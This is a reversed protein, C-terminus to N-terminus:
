SGLHDLAKRVLWEAHQKDKVVGFIIYDPRVLVLETCTSEFWKTYKGTDDKWGGGEEGSSFHVYKGGLVDKFEKSTRDSLLVSPDTDKAILCWGGGIMNDFFGKKGDKSNSIINQMFLTGPEAAPSHDASENRLHMGPDAVREFNPPPGRRKAQLFEEDRAKAQEPEVIAIMHETRKAAAVFVRTTGLQESSYNELMRTWNLEPRRLALDLRWALSKADRLGSNVGQGLFQPTIHAADGALAVRGKAFTEAWGGGISYVTSREISATDPTCNMMAVMKWIFEESKGLETSEDPMIMFEWRRRAIQPPVSSRPRRYDLYQRAQDSDKWGKMAEPTKPIMDVVLWRSTAPEYEVFPIEIAERVISKAGDCGVVFKATVVAQQDRDRGAEKETKCISVEVKDGVDRVDLVEVGRFIQVDRERCANELVEEVVPQHMCYALDRGLISNPSNMPIEALTRGKVDCYVMHDSIRGTMRQLAQTELMEDLVNLEGFARVAQHGLYVGRPQPYRRPHREYLHVNHGYQRLLLATTLGVPGAGVVIVSCDLTMKLM